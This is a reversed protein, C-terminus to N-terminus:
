TGAGPKTIDFDFLAGTARVVHADEDPPMLPDRLTAYVSQLEDSLVKRQEFWDCENALMANSSRLEASEAELEKVRREAKGTRLLWESALMGEKTHVSLADYRDKYLQENKVILEANEARLREIERDKNDGETLAADLKDDLENLKLYLDREAQEMNANAKLLADRLREIEADRLEIDARLKLPESRLWESRLRQVEESKTHLAERLVLAEATKADLASQLDVTKM